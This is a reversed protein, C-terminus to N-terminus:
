VMDALTKLQIVVPLADGNTQQQMFLWYAFFMITIITSTKM